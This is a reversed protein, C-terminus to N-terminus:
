ASTISPATPAATWTGAEYEDLMLDWMESWRRPRSINGFFPAEMCTGPSPWPWGVSTELLYISGSNVDHLIDLACWHTNLETFVTNAFALVAQTVASDLDMAPEVNGTQALHTGPANYRKFIARGRGIANVRWTIDHPIFTQLLVYNKQKGRSHRGNPGGGACHDVEIGKGFALRIHDLLEKRTRLIRVNKSSAGEDAKSVIWRGEIPFARAFALAAELKDFRWTQPMHQSWLWFQASKDDYVEIQRFDQVMTLHEAMEWWDLHNQQLIEPIAHPRIFGLGTRGRAEHGRSIRKVDYGRAAAAAMSPEHWNGREDLITYMM